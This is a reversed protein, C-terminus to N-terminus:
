SAIVRVYWSFSSINIEFLATSLCLAFSLELAHSTQKFLTIGFRLPIFTMALKANQIIM